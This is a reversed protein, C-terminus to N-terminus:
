SALMAWTRPWACKKAPWPKPSATPLLGRRFGVLLDHRRNCQLRGDHGPPRGGLRGPPGVGLREAITKLRALSAQSGAGVIVFRVATETAVLAAAARLFTEHDKMPDIRAVIGILVHDDSLGWQMRLQRRGSDDHRYLDTDIGNPIVLFRRAPYGFDIHFRRGAESNAILADAGHSLWAGTRWLLRTPWDYFRMDLGSARVGWVVRARAAWGLLLAIENAGYMYGHVIQPRLDRVARYLRLMFGVLDWRGRKDASVVRV